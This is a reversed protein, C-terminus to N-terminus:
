IEWFDGIKVYKVYLFFCRLYARSISGQSAVSPPKHGNKASKQGIEPTKLAKKPNKLRNQPTKHRNQTNQTNKPGIQATKLVKKEIKQTNKPTSMEQTKHSKKASKQV